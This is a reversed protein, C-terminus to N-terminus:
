PELLVSLHLLKGDLRISSVFEDLFAWDPELFLRIVYRADECLLYVNARAHVTDGLTYHRDILLAVAQEGEYRSYTRMEGPTVNYLPWEDMLDIIEQHTLSTAQSDGVVYLSTSWDADEKKFYYSRQGNHPDVEMWCDAPLTFSIRGNTFVHPQRYITPKNFFVSTVEQAPSVAITDADTQKGIDVDPAPRKGLSISLILLLFLSLIKLSRRIVQGAAGKAKQYISNLIDFM